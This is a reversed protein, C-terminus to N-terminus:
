DERKKNAALGLIGALSAIAMGIIGLDSKKSGTQPLSAKVAESKTAVATKGTKAVKDAKVPKTAHPRVSEAKKVQKGSDNASKNDTPKVPAVESKDNNDDNNNDNSTTPQAPTEPTVPQVPAPVTPQTPKTPQTPQVETPQAPTTSPANKQVYYVYTIDDTGMPLQASDAPQGNIIFKGSKFDLYPMPYGQKTGVHYGAPLKVGKVNQVWTWDSAVTMPSTEELVQNTDQDIIKANAKHLNAFYIVDWTQDAMKPIQNYIGDKEKVFGPNYLFTGNNFHKYAVENGNEPYVNLGIIQTITTGSEKGGNQSLAKTFASDPIRADNERYTIDLDYGPIYQFAVKDFLDADSSSKDKNVRWQTQGTKANKYEDFTAHIVKENLKGTAATGERYSFTYATQGDRYQYWYRITRTKEMSQGTKQWDSTKADSENVSKQQALANTNATSSSVDKANVTETAKSDVSAKTTKENQETQQAPTQDTVDAHVTQGAMGIFAAGIVVSAAGVTLKRISFRQEKEFM